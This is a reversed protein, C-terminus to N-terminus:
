SLANLLRDIDKQDNYVSPSIRMLRGGLKVGVNAKKLRASASAPDKVVFTVIPSRSEPPTLPEFGLRPLEKQLRRTMTLAHAQIKDVGIQQIYKLSHTLCAVTTNSITGVEFHAGADTGQEWSAVTKAPPDFPYIHDQFRRLQRYSYQVRHVVRGLLDERVYLFGLGMDGMLWKYSACACFDVGTARVDVPIAGAAQVIDAYVYAGRSHALDCVAKLDHQFGTNMSVLSLAVLKTKRDIVKEMDRLEIRWDRPRVIRLDLGQKELAQYM